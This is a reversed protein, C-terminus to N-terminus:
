IIAVYLWVYPGFVLHVAIPSQHRRSPGAGPTMCRSDPSFGKGFAQLAPGEGEGAHAEEAYPDHGESGADSFEEM